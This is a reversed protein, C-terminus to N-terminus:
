RRFRKMREGAGIILLRLNGSIMQASVSQPRDALDAGRKQMIEVAAQAPTLERGIQLPSDIIVKYGAIVVVIRNGNKISFVPGYRQSYDHFVKFIRSPLYTLQIMSEFSNICGYRPVPGLGETPGPPINLHPRSAAWRTLSAGALLCLIAGYGLSQLSIIDTLM